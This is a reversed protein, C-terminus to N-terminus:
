RRELQDALEAALFFGLVPLLPSAAGAGAATSDGRVAAKSLFFATVGVFAITGLLTEDSVRRAM